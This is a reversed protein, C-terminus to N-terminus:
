GPPAVALTVSLLAQGFYGGVAVCHPAACSAGLLISGTTGPPLDIPQLSWVGDSWAEAFAVAANGPTYNGTAICVSASRCAVASVVVNSTSSQFGPPNPVPQFSWGRGNWREAFAGGPSAFYSGTATCAAASTCSVAAFVGGQAGKPLPVKQVQWSTGDWTEALPQGNGVGNSDFGVATCTSASTCAVGPLNSIIGPTVVSQITWDHGNWREALAAPDGPHPSYSGTATCADPSSCSVAELAAFRTGAPSPISLLSWASGNWSEALALTPGTPHDLYSGVAICASPSACSVAALNSVITGAPNPTPQIVWTSGNWVEALSASTLSTNDYSGVAECATASACSVGELESLRNGTPTPTAHIHWASGNWGEALPIDFGRHGVQFGASACAGASTCAVGNLQSQEASASNPTSQIVWGSGNWAEALTVTGSSTIAAGVATCARASTCSVAGLESAVAGAPSPTSQV